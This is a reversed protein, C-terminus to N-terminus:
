PLPMAHVGGTLRNGKQGKQALPIPTGRSNFQPCHGAGAVVEDFIWVRKAVNGPGHPQRKVCSLWRGMSTM